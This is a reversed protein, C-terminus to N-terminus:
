SLAILGVAGLCAVVAGWQVRDLRERLLGHALGAVVVPYLSTILAALSLMGARAAALFLVNAVMDLTGTAVALALFRGDRPIGVRRVALAAGLLVLSAARAGVLSWLGSTAPSADLAVFFVGFGFGGLLALLPGRSSSGRRAGAALDRGGVLVVAALGLAIGVTALTSPREGTSFGIAVPLVAGTVGALPAALGMPGIALGRLYLVLGCAGAVGGVAGATLAASSLVGPLLLLGPALVLLGAAQAFWSVTLAPARRAALGGAFDSAGFTLAASLALLATM